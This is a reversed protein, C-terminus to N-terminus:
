SSAPTADGRAAAPGRWASALMTAAAYIVVIMVMWRLWDIPLTKVVLAAILVAPVGGLALGLSARLNYRGTAIFRAGGVPMLFACSGMMIPFAVLPNMGLLSVLILCPAYLGIGLMMMAGLFFSVVIAVLLRAGDLGLAEGGGPMWHLLSAFVFGAAILLASGMGIQIARRPLRSVFGVGIWAGTVAAGIMSLLTIPDVSVITIFILAQVITPLAHGVNLTGPIQEDAVRGNLKFLVTSTAFSGIGLTDLFNTVFGIVTDVPSWLSKGEGPRSPRTEVWWWRICFGLACMALAGLLVPTTWRSM